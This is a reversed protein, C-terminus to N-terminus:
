GHSEAEKNHSILATILVKILHLEAEEFSDFDVDHDIELSLGEVILGYRKGALTHYPVVWGDIHHIDRFWRFAQSYTPCQVTYYCMAGRAPQKTGNIHIYETQDITAICKEKFGLAILQIAEAHKVFEKDM